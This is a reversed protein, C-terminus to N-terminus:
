KKQYFSNDSLSFVLNNVLHNLQNEAGALAIKRVEIEKEEQEPRREMSHSGGGLTGGAENTIQPVTKEKRIRGFIKDEFTM